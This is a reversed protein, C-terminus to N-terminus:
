IKIVRPIGYGTLWHRWRWALIGGLGWTCLVIRLPLSGSYGQGDFPLSLVALFALGSLYKLPRPRIGWDWRRVVALALRAALLGLAAGALVDLPWHVGVAIRSLGAMTAVLLALSGVRWGCGGYLVGAMAFAAAAHGSPLAYSSGARGILIVQEMPLVSLPRPLHFLAKVGHSTLGALAAALVAAWFLRPYRLCFPLLVAFLMREDGFATLWEWVVAPVQGTLVQVALFGSAHGLTLAYVGAVALAFLCLQSLRREDVYLHQRGIEGPISGASGALSHIPSM